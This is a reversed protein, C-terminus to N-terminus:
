VNENGFFECIDFADTSILPSLRTHTNAYSIIDARSLKGSSFLTYNSM